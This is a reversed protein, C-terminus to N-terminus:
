EVSFRIRNSVVKSAEDEAWLEFTGVDLMVTDIKHSFEGRETTRFRLPNYESGDPRRLHSMVSRNPTFGTGTLQVPDGMKVKTPSVTIEPRKQAYFSAVTVCTLFWLSVSVCLASLVCNPFKLTRLGLARQTETDKHNTRYTVAALKDSFRLM